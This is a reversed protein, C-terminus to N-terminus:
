GEERRRSGSWSQAREFARRQRELLARAGSRTPVGFDDILMLLVDELAVRGSAVHVKHFDPWRTTPAMVHVHCHDVTRREEITRPHYHFLLLPDDGRLLQYAYGRTTLRTGRASSVVQAWHQVYLRLNGRLRIPPPDDKGTTVYGETGGLSM